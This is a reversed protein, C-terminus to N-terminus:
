LHLPPASSRKRGAFEELAAALLRAVVRHLLHQVLHHAQQGVDAVLVEEGLEVALAEAPAQQVVLAGALVVLLGHQPAELLLAARLERLLCARAESQNESRQPLLLVAYDFVM